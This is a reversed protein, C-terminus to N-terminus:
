QRKGIQPWKRRSRSFPAVITRAAPYKKYGGFGAGQVGRIGSKPPGPVGSGPTGPDRIQPTGPDRLDQKQMSNEHFLMNNVNNRLSSTMNCM